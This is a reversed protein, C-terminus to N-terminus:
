HGVRFGVGFFLSDLQYAMSHSYGFQFDTVSDPKLLLWTSFGHDDAADATTVTQPTTEFVNNHGNGTATSVTATKTATSSTGSKLSKGLVKSVIEQQGTATVGYASAGAQLHRAIKFLGGGEFHAVAGNTTFPRVFFATDSVTNALGVSAYPTFAPRPHSFTNTWDVTAHGTSFGSARDGTPATLVLDSSYKLSDNSASILLGTFANGIGNVFNTTGTTSNSSSERTFYVPLGSYFQVHRSFSYGLTSNAKLVLGADNSTGQFRESFWWGPGDDPPAAVCILTPMLLISITILNLKKSM